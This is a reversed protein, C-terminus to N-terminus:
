QYMGIDLLLLGNKESLKHNPDIPTEAPRSGLNQQEQTLRIITEKSYDGKQGQLKLRWFM